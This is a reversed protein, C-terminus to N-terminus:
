ARIRPAATRGDIAYDFVCRLAVPSGPLSGSVEVQAEASDLHREEHTVEDHVAPVESRWARIRDIGRHM